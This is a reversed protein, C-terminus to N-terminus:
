ETQLVQVHTLPSLMSPGVSTTSRLLGGTHCWTTYTDSANPLEANANSDVIIDSDSDNTNSYVPTANPSPTNVLEPNISYGHTDSYVTTAEPSEVDNSISTSHEVRKYAPASGEVYDRSM